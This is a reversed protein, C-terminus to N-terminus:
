TLLNLHQAIEVLRQLYNESKTLINRMTKTLLIITEKKWYSINESAYKLAKLRVNREKTLTPTGEAVQGKYTSALKKYTTKMDKADALYKIQLDFSRENRNFLKEPPKAKSVKGLPHRGLLMIGKRYSEIDTFLLFSNEAALCAKPIIRIKNNNVEFYLKIQNSIVDNILEITKIKQQDTLEDSLFDIATPGSQNRGKYQKTFFCITGLVMCCGTGLILPVTPKHVINLALGALTLFTFAGTFVYSCEYVIKRWYAKTVFKQVKKHDWVTVDPSVSAQDKLWSTLENLDNKLLNKAEDFAPWRPITYSTWYERIKALDKM